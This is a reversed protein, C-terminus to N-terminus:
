GQEERMDAGCNPCFNPLNADTVGCWWPWSGCVSCEFKDDEFPALAATKIWQGRVVPRVDAAPVHLLDVVFLQGSCWSDGDIWFDCSKCNNKCGQRRKFLENASIYKDSM